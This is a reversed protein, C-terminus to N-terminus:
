FRGVEGPTQFDPQADTRNYHVCSPYWPLDSTVIRDGAAHRQNVQDALVSFQDKVDVTTATLGHFRTAAALLLIPLM